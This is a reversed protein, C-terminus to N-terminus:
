NISMRFFVLTEETSLTQYKVKFIKKKRKAMKAATHTLEWFPVSSRQKWKPLQPSDINNTHM